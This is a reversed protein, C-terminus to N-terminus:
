DIRAQAENPSAAVVAEDRTEATVQAPTFGRATIGTTLLLAAFAAALSRADGV